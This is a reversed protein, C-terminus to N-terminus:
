QTVQQVSLEKWSQLLWSERIVDCHKASIEQRSQSVSSSEKLPAFHIISNRKQRHLVATFVSFPQETSLRTTCHVRSYQGRGDQSTRARNNATRYYTHPCISTNNISHENTIRTLTSTQALSPSLQLKGPTCRFTPCDFQAARYRLLLKMKSAQNTPGTCVRNWRLKSSHFFANFQYLLILISKLSFLQFM